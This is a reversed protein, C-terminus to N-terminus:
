GVREVVGSAPEHRLLTDEAIAFQMDKSCPDVNVIWVFCALLLVNTNASELLRYAIVADFKCCPLEFSIILQSTEQLEGVSKNPHMYEDREEVVTRESAKIRITRGDDPAEAERREAAVSQGCDTKEKLDWYRVCEAIDGVIQSNGSGESRM